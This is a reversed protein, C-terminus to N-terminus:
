ESAETPFLWQRQYGEFRPGIVRHVFEGCWNERTRFPFGDPGSRIFCLGGWHITESEEAGPNRSLYEQLKPDIQWYLCDGCNAVPLESEMEWTPIKEDM